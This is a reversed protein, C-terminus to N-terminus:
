ADGLTWMARRDRALAGRSGRHRSVDALQRMEGELDAKLDNYHVFYAFDERRLPWWSALHTISSCDNAWQDFLEDM